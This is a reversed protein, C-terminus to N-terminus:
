KIKANIVIIGHGESYTTVFYGKLWVNKGVLRKIDDKTYGCKDTVIDLEKIPMETKGVLPKDLVLVYDPLAVDTPDNPHRKYPKLAVQNCRVTLPM